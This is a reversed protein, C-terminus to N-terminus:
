AKYSFISCVTGFFDLSAVVPVVIIRHYADDDDDDLCKVTKHNYHQHTVAM